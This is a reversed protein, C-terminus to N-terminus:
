RYDTWGEMIKEAERLLENLSEATFINMEEIETAPRFVDWNGAYHEQRLIGVQAISTIPQGFTGAWEPPFIYIKKKVTEGEDEETNEKPPLVIEEVKIMEPEDFAFLMMKNDGQELFQGRFRYRLDEDWEMIDFLTKALGRCGLTSACWRGEKLRGWRIANPNNKDCPRIAICREVSNLLLEVYEVNEFKKLCATNFRLRGNSITMAPNQMTSFYQVRVIEYGTLDLRKKVDATVTVDPEKMVSESAERYEEASFGTWDKDFPVYGRLIGDEVVSLVPLPRNKKSYNRSARLHNAANFVERSVIAEHHNKQRYQTRDNNNKKSKHTLFNPTFTKRALVDGCHRENALVGALTGPNWEVRGLKTKRSYEMLLTAIETLSYGNLYLYYIVKVTQAEEPNIVLNGEEDKDYGLLAPTLFLGRSFRRDISWNMIISKSHSEEEAVSALISKTLVLDIKGAKCDEILQQMGKRHELSTGSIGEDAYIGVFVWGPQAQIYDTYYNKQLEYSSTQEDNDTSVRIYAAVRRIVSSTELDEIIKAPIVELESIDVGKYRDRIKQKRDVAEVEGTIM